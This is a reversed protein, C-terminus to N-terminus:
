AIDAFIKETRRFYRAGSFAILIAVVFGSAILDWPFPTKGLICSRFGEIVGAMPYCGYLLRYKGPILSVPWVVPAAYMLIQSFFQVAYKVDRYQIALASLWLGIGSGTLVLLVLLLPLLFLQSSPLISYWVMLAGLFLFSVVFDVLGSFVPTLPIFLRPFYVKTIMNSNGILSQTSNIIATSFYTWPVLASYSFIPYPIGDSPIKTLRGFILSFVVMSFLPRIIAWAFGLVTQKYLITVDRWVLFYFLDRYQTLEKWDIAKWGKKPEIIVQNVAVAPHWGGRMESQEIM